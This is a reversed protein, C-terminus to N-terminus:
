GKWYTHVWGRVDHPGNGWRGAAERPSWPPTNKLWTLNGSKDSWWVGHKTTEVFVVREVVVKESDSYTRRFRVVMPQRVCHGDKHVIIHKGGTFVHLGNHEVVLM